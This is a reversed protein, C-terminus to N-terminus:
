SSVDINEKKTRRHRWVYLVVVVLVAIVVAATIYPTYERVLHKNGGILYGITILTTMWIGSGVGTYICFKKLNMHALGAPFAIFHRLGPILRGTFTSIDGHSKFFQDLSDMKKHSFFFYKGYAYLFRRGFHFAVYYNALAGGLAGFTSVLVVILFNMHGQQVLYGAPIMTVESPLPVFTSELFAMIFIGLYGFQHVFDVLWESIQELM